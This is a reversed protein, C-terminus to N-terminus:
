RRSPPFRVQFGGELEECDGRPRVAAFDGRDSRHLNRRAQETGKPDEDGRGQCIAGLGMTLILYNHLWSGTTPPPRQAARLECEGTGICGETRLLEAALIIPLLRTRPWAVVTKEKFPLRGREKEQWRFDTTQPRGTMGPRRRLLSAAAARTGRRRLTKIQLRRGYAPHAVSTAAEEAISGEEM